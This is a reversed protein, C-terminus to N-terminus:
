SRLSTSMIKKQKNQASVPIGEKAPSNDVEHCLAYRLFTAVKPKSFVRLCNQGFFEGGFYSTMLNWISGKENEDSSWTFLCIFSPIFWVHELTCDRVINVYVNKTIWSPTVDTASSWFPVSMKSMQSSLPRDQNHASSPLSEEKTMKFWYNHM